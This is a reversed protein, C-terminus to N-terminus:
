AGAVVRHYLALYQEMMRAASFRKALERNRRGFDPQRELLEIASRIGQALAAPNDPEVLIAEANHLVEPLGGVCTAVIPKGAAMAELAVMGFPERRSPIVIIGSQAMAALVERSAAAGEFKVDRLHLDQALAELAPREPGDGIIRLRWASNSQMREWAGLLVDIGKKPVLRGAALLVPSSTSPLAQFDAGNYIIQSKDKIRPEIELAQQLLACSCVTVAVARALITHTVWRDFRTGRTIGEVDDGHLSVILRFQALWQAGLLFPAPAGVFHFNVVDPKERWIYLVLRILTLPFLLLGAVYLDHRGHLLDIWRPMIFFWRLVRVGDIIEKGPLSRPHRPAIVTVTHGQRTLSTALQSTVNQLGGFHPLYSSVVLLIKLPSCSM